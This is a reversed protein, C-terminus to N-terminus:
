TAPKAVPKSTQGSTPSTSVPAPSQNGGDVEKAPESQPTTTADKPDPKVEGSTVEGQKLDAVQQPRKEFTENGVKGDGVKGMQQSRIEEILSTIKMVEQRLQYLRILERQLYAKQRIPIRNDIKWNRRKPDYTGVIAGNIAFKLEENIVLFSFNNNTSM